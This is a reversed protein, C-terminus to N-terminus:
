RRQKMGQFTWWALFVMIFVPIIFWWIFRKPSKLEVIEHDGILLISAWASPHIDKVNNDIRDLKALRFAQSASFNNKLAKYFSLWFVDKSLLSSKRLDYAVAHVGADQLAIAWREKNFLEENITEKSELVLLKSNLDIKKLDNFRIENDKNSLNEANLYLSNGDLSMQLHILDFDIANKKLYNLNIYKPESYFSGDIILKLSDILSYSTENSIPGMFLLGSAKPEKIKELDLLAYLPLEYVFNFDRLLYNLENFFPNDDVPLESILAEFHVDSLFKDNIIRINKEGNILDTFLLEAYLRFAISAYDKVKHTKSPAIMYSRFLELDKILPDLELQNFILNQEKFSLKYLHQQSKYFIINLHDAKNKILSSIDLTQARFVDVNLIAKTKEQIKTSRATLIKYFNESFKFLSAYQDSNLDIFVGLSPKSKHKISLGYQDYYFDIKNQLSMCALARDVYDENQTRQYLYFYIEFINSIYQRISFNMNARPLLLSLHDVAYSFNDQAMLLLERQSILQNGALFIQKLNNLLIKNLVFNLVIKESKNQKIEQLQDLCKRVLFNADEFQGKQSKLAAKLCDMMLTQHGKKSSLNYQRTIWEAQISSFKSIHILSPLFISPNLNQVICLDILNRNLIRPALHDISATNINLLCAILLRMKKPKQMSVRRIIEPIIKQNNNLYVALIQQALLFEQKTNYDLLTFEVKNHISKQLADAKEFEGLFINLRLSEMQFYFRLMPDIQLVADFHDFLYNYGSIAQEFFGNQQFSRILHCNHWFNNEKWEISDFQIDKETKSFCDNFQGVANRLSDSAIVSKNWKLQNGKWQIPCNLGSILKQIDQDSFNTFWACQQVIQISQNIDSVESYYEILSDLEGNQLYYFVPRVKQGFASNVM